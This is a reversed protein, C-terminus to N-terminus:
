SRVPPHILATNKVKTMNSAGKLHAAKGQICAFHTIDTFKLM